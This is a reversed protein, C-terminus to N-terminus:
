PYLGLIALNLRTFFVIWRHMAGIISDIQGKNHERGCLPCIRSKAPRNAKDAQAKLSAYREQATNLVAANGVLAKQDETLADYAEQAADIRAKCEDTYEVEGIDEIAKITGNVGCYFNVTLAEDENRARVTHTDEDMLDFAMDGITVSNWESERGTFNITRLAYCDQFASDGIVTVSDPITITELGSCRGFLGASVATIGDPLSVYKLAKCDFFVKGGLETSSSLVTVSQLARCERFAFEGVREVTEPITVSGLAYCFAFAYYDIVTVSAPIVVSELAACSIFAEEGIRTVSEPISVSTVRNFNYFADKGIGTVGPGIVISAADGSYRMSWPARDSLFDYDRIDGSGGVTLTKTTDDYTWTISGDTGGDAASAAPVLLTLCLILALLVGATKKSATKM